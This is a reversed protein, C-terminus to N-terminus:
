GQALNPPCGCATKLPTGVFDGVASRCCPHRSINPSLRRTETDHVPAFAPCGVWPRSSWWLSDCLSRHRSIGGSPAAYSSIELAKRRSPDFVVPSLPAQNPTGTRRNRHGQRNLKRTLPCPKMRRIGTKSRPCARDKELSCLGTTVVGLVLPQVFKAM